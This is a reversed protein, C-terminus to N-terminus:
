GETSFSRIRERGNGPFLDTCDIEKGPKLEETGMLLRIYEDSPSYFFLTMPRPPAYWSGTIRALVSRLTEPSFPNFFYFRDADPPVEYREASAERFLVDTKGAFRQRNREAEALLLPNFDIGVSRCGIQWSLFLSVRGKGCGYDVLFRDKTILGSDALRELVAYPTPEYPLHHADVASADRGGTSIRLKQDWRQDSNM